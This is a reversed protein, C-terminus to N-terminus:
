KMTEDNRGGGEDVRFEARQIKWGDTTKRWQLEVRVRGELTMEGELRLGARAETEVADSGARRARVELGELALGLRPAEGLLMAHLDKIERRGEVSWSGGDQWVFEASADAALSGEVASLRRVTELPTLAQRQLEVTAALEVTRKGLRVTPSFVHVLWCGALMVAVAAVAMWWRTQKLMNGRREAEM